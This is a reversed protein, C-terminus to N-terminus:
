IQNYSTAILCDDQSVNIKCPHFCWMEGSSNPYMGRFDPMRWLTCKVADKQAKNTESPFVPTLNPSTHREQGGSSSPQSTSSEPGDADSEFMSSDDAASSNGKSGGEGTEVSEEANSPPEAKSSAHM